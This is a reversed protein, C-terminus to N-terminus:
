RHASTSFFTHLLQVTSFSSVAVPCCGVASRGVLNLTHLVHYSDAYKNQQLFQQMGQYHGSM